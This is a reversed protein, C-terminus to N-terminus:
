KQKVILLVQKPLRQQISAKLMNNSISLYSASLKSTSLKQRTYIYFFNSTLSQKITSYWDHMAIFLESRLEAQTSEGSSSM